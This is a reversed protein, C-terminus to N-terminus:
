PLYANFFTPIENQSNKSLPIDKKETNSAKQKGVGLAELTENPINAFWGGRYQNKLWKNQNTKLAEIFTKWNSKCRFFRFVFM